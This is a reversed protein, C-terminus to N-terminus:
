GLGFTKFLAVVGGCFASIALVPGKPYEAIRRVIFEGVYLLASAMYALVRAFLITIASTVFGTLVIAFPAIILFHTREGLYVVGFLAIGGFTLAAMCMEGIDDTFKSLALIILRAILTFVVGYILAISLILPSGFQQAPGALVYFQM